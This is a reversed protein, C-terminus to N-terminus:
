DIDFQNPTYSLSDKRSNLKEKGDRSEIVKKTRELINICDRKNYKSLQDTLSNITAVIEREYLMYIRVKLWHKLDERCFPCKQNTYYIEVWCKFCCKHTCKISRFGKPSYCIIEGYCIGCEDVDGSVIEDKKIIVDIKDREDESLNLKEIIQDLTNITESTAMKTM